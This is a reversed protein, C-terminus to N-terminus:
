VDLETDIGLLPIQNIAQLMKKRSKKQKCIFNGRDVTERIEPYEWFIRM